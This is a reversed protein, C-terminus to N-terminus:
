CLEDASSVVDQYIFFAAVCSKSDTDSDCSLDTRGRKCKSVELKWMSFIARRTSMLLQDVCNTHVQFLVEARIRSSIVTRWKWSLVVSLKM